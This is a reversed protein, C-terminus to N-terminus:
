VIVYYLNKNLIYNIKEKRKKNEKKNKLKLPFSYISKIKKNKKNNKLQLTFSYISYFL